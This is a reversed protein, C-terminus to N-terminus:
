KFLFSHVLPLLTAAHILYPPRSLPFYFPRRLFLTRRTPPATFNSVFARSTKISRPWQSALYVSPFLKYIPVCFPYHSRHSCLPSFFHTQEYCRIQSVTIIISPVLFLDFFLLACLYFFFFLFRSGVFFRFFYNYRSM